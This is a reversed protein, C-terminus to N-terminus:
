GDVIVFVGAPMCTANEDVISIFGFGECIHDPCVSNIFRIAGDKVELTVPLRAGEIHYVEDKSLDIEMAKEELIYVSATRGTKRRTKQWILMGLVALVALGILLVNINLKKKEM